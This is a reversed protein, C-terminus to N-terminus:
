RKGKVIFDQLDFIGEKCGFIYNANKILFTNSVMEIEDDDIYDKLAILIDNMITRIKGVTM